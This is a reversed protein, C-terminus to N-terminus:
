STVNKAAVANVSKTLDSNQDNQAYNDGKISAQLSKYSRSDYVTGTPLCMADNVEEWYEQDRLPVCPIRETM